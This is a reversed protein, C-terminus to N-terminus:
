RVAIELTQGAKLLLPEGFLVSWGGQDQAAFTAAVPVGDLSVEADRVTEVSGLHLERLALEGYAVSLEVEFSEESMKQVYSGWASDLSWLTRFDAAYLRPTFGLRGNPVDFEYGALATLLGWSAMSRAYHSGCEFENWPNRREGDHRDRVGKVIRLGEEIFGEYLLHSAVQYEIGCWVEDSYVFPLEPRGGRPWSCLLLGQEDNLAYIRQPNAHDWFDARWNHEFIAQLASRIHEPDFLHGLDVMRALWEGLLQDSLCGAGYQYKPQGPIQGGMSEELKRPSTKWADPNVKQIYFEGNYLEAEMKARGKRYLAHYEDAQAYEGLHRAIEEAARLAGLYFSGMLTNPGWFEIDYTNHQVGEMVGDRDQDWAVWAYALAKKVRPWLRRLWADDGSLRWDRYVKIIGGMQGDAAAHFHAIDSGIPLQLRFGMRGDQDLNYVYDATRMSRELAPFLFALAQAYNWVHTCSGECCGATCHCGEFAYFTGDQLRLCTTTKLTSMQSAAADLVYPPATTAFLTDHFLRTEAYLREANEAVYHAVQWADLFQTAYYNKWTPRECADGECACSADGWYKLFNPFHWTICFPLTVTEGPGIEAKLVLSGVDGQGDPSPSVYTREQLTGTASFEDWFKHLADYWGGRFWCTQHDVDKWTTTLALSGFKPDNAAYRESTMHLGRLSEGEVYTNVAGGMTPGQFSGSGPYGVANYLNAALAVRVATDGPNHLKVHFIAAPLSSDQDNAPIFPNYAELTVQVPVDPDEFDIWALPYEGHFTGSHLHPLGAGNERNVGFGFGGFNAGGQGSFPALPPSQVVKTVPQGDAAQAWLTFFSYPMRSGINPRNFIEWDILEGTGGLSISGTGIGGIPFAVQSLHRGSFTRQPALAALQEFSVGSKKVIVEKHPFLISHVDM